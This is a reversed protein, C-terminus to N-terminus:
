VDYVQIAISRQLTRSASTVITDTLMYVSFASGGTVTTTAVPTALVPGSLTPGTDVTWNSSSITEGSALLDTWDISYDVIDSPDKIFVGPISGARWTRSTPAAM